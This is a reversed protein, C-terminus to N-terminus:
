KGGVEETVAAPAAIDTLHDRDRRSLYVVGGVMSWFLSGAYALLSLSLAGTPDVSLEPVALMLVYLNERVGLGSPTIPLASICVIIPVIVFLAMSPIQLHLGAALVMIQLVCFVNLVMSIALMRVLFLRDRGFERCAELAREVLEGKPLRRLWVRAQPLSKSIGGWFSLIVLAGCGAMMLVVLWALAALRSHHSLLALNPLMMLAAFLLMAFLGVLRDVLVTMVAETKKHHTERAAYYAKLLDGGTSGLLFSNFFHAVLSIEATRPLSLNLGQVGLVMRWRLLGLVITMGMCVLSLLLSGPDVMNLTHWLERPGHSWALHWQASRSLQAWVYGEAPAIRRAEAVFISHFIWALLLVSVLVRWGVSWISRLRNV